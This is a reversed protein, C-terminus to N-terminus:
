VGVRACSGESRRGRALLRFRVGVAQLQLSRVFGEPHLPQCELNRTWYHPCAYMQPCGRVIMPKRCYRSIITLYSATTRQLIKPIETTPPRAALAHPASAVPLPKFGDSKSAKSFSPPTMNLQCWENSCQCCDKISTTEYSSATGSFAAETIWYYHRWDDTWLPKLKLELVICRSCGPDATFIAFIAEHHRKAWYLINFLSSPRGLFCESRQQNRTPFRLM